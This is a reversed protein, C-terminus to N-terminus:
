LFKNIKVPIFWIEAYISIPMMMLYKIVRKTIMILGGVYIEFVYRKSCNTILVAEM